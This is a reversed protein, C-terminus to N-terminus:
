GNSTAGTWKTPMNVNTGIIAWLTATNGTHTAKLAKEAIGMQNYLDGINDRYMSYALQQLQPIADGLKALHYDNAQSAASIAATSPLGGTM